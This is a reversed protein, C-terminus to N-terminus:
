RDFPSPAGSAFWARMEDPTMAVGEDSAIEADTLGLAHLQAVLEDGRRRAAEAEDDHQQHLPDGM